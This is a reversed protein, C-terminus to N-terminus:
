NECFKYDLCIARKIDKESFGLLELGTTLAKMKEKFAVYESKTLLKFSNFNVLRFDPFAEETVAWKYRTGARLVVQDRYLVISNSTTGIKLIHESNEQQLHFYVKKTDTKNNWTFEIEPVYFQISDMPKTLVIGRDERYVVGPRQRIEKQNSFQKWVFTFYAVSLSKRDSVKRFDKIINYTYSAPSNLEFVEGVQNILFVTDFQKIMLTDLGGIMEGRRLPAETNIIPTGSKQFVFYPEQAELLTVTSLTIFCVQKLRSLLIRAM